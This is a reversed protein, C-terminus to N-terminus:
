TQASVIPPRRGSIALRVMGVAMQPVEDVLTEALVPQRFPRVFEGIM